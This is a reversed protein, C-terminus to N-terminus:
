KCWPYTSSTPATSPPRGSRSMDPPMRDALGGGNVWALNTGRVVWVISARPRREALKVLDILVNAASHGALMYRKLTELTPAVQVRRRCLGGRCFLELDLKGNSREKKAGERGTELAAGKVM